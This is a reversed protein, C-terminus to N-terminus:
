SDSEMPKYYCDHDFTPDFVKRQNEDRGRAPQFGTVCSMATMVKSKLRDQASLRTASARIVIARPRIEIQSLQFDDDWVIGATMEVAPLPAAAVPGEAGPAAGDGGEVPAEGGELPAPAPPAPPPKPGTPKSAKVFAALVEIAGRDAILSTIDQGDVENLRAEIDETSVLAEGFVKASAKGLEDERAQREAELAGVKVMTDIAALTLIAFGLAAITSM